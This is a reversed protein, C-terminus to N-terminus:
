VHTEQRRMPQNTQLSPQALTQKAIKRYAVVIWQQFDRRLSASSIMYIYFPAASYIYLLFLSFNFAFIEARAHYPSKTPMVYGSIMTELLSIPFLATSIIYVVVEAIVLILLDRDRRQVIQTAHGTNPNIPQVRNRLRKLNRYTLCAFISLIISPILGIFLISYFTFITAYLGVRRYQGNDPIIFIAQHSTAIAWFIYAFLVLYKARKPTSLARLAARENIILYRDICAFILITKAAQGLAAPIYSSFKCLLLTTISGNNNSTVFLLKLPYSTVLFLLNAVTSGTIYISCANRRQRSFLILVFVNGISGFILPVIYGYTNIQTQVVNLTAISM